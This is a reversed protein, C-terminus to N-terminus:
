PAGKNLSVYGCIDGYERKKLEAGEGHLRTDSVSTIIPSISVGALSPTPTIPQPDWPAALATLCQLSLLLLRFM